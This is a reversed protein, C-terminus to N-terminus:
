RLWRPQAARRSVEPTGRFPHDPHATSASASITAAPTSTAARLRQDAATVLVSYARMHITTSAAAVTANESATSRRGGCGNHVPTTPNTNAIGASTASSAVAVTRTSAIAAAAATGSETAVNVEAAVRREGIVANPASAATVNTSM